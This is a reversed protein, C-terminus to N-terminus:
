HLSLGTSDNKGRSFDNPLGPPAAVIVGGADVKMLTTASIISPNLVSSLLLLRATMM